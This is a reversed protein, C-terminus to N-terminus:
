LLLTISDSQDCATVGVLAIIPFTTIDVVFRSLRRGCNHYNERVLNKHHICKSWSLMQYRQRKTLNLFFDGSKFINTIKYKTISLTNSISWAGQRNINHIATRARELPYVPKDVIM